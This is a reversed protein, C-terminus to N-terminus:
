KILRKDREDLKRATGIKLKRRDGPAKFTAIPKRCHKYVTAKHYRSFTELLEKGCLGTLQYCVRMKLSDELSVWKISKKAHSVVKNHKNNDMNNIIQQYM